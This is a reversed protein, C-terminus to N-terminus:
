DSAAAKSSWAALWGAIAGVLLWVILSQADM